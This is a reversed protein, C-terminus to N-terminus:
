CYTLYFDGIAYFGLESPVCDFHGTRLALEGAVHAEGLDRNGTVALFDSDRGPGPSFLNRRHDTGKLCVGLVHAPTHAFTEIIRMFTTYLWKGM